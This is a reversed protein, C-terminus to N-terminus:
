GSSLVDPALTTIGRGHGGQAFAALDIGLKLPTGATERHPPTCWDLM